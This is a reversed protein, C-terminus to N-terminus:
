SSLTLVYKAKMDKAIPLAPDFSHMEVIWQYLNDGILEPPMYWGLDKLSRAVEQEKIMAKLERQIALSALPTSQFPPLMLSALNREVYKADHKWDNRPRLPVAVAKTVFSSASPVKYDDDDDLDHHQSQSNSGFKQKAEFQFVAMDEVDPDELIYDANRAALLTELQFAPDPIAIVKGCMMTKHLPDLKVYPTVGSSKKKRKKSELSASVSTSSANSTSDPAGKVLLYRSPCSLVFFPPEVFTHCVVHDM